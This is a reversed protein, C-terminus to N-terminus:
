AQLAPQDFYEVVVECIRDVTEMTMHSYMPLALSSASVLETVPLRSECGPDVGQYLTQKHVAPYFYRKTQIGHSKLYSYLQDRTVRSQRPCIVIVVYNRSSAIHSPISQFRIGPLSSLLEHYREMIARRASLWTDLRALSWRGVIANVESMRASLGLLHMDEGNPAKGYDRMSRLQDALEPANTTVLGGEIATVVKTPSLSFVEARGFSGLSVGKYTAGLGQASDYILPLGHKDALRQYADLDGPTGFVCVPYIAVTRETILKSAESPNMTFSDPEIDCFVPNLENWLLAHTTAAFTYSPTIVEGGKPLGLARILLMLAATGSSVAVAQNVGTRECIDQEFNAVHEGLTVRGSAFIARMQEMLEAADPLTPCFVPYDFTVVEGQAM